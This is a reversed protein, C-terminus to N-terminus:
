NKSRSPGAPSSRMGEADPRKALFQARLREGTAVEKSEGRQLSFLYAEDEFTLGHFLMCQVMFNDFKHIQKLAALTHAGDFVYFHGDRASVKLPNVVRPDFNDVIRQVRDPDLRRQYGISSELVASSLRTYGFGCKDDLMFVDHRSQINDIHLQIAKGNVPRRANRNKRSM